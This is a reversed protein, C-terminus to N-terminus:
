LEDDYFMDDESLDDTSKNSLPMMLTAYDLKIYHDPTKTWSDIIQSIDNKSRNHINNKTCDQLNITLECTYPQKFFFIM